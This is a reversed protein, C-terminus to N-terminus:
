GRYSRFYLQAPAQGVCHFNLDTYLQTLRTQNDTRGNTGLPYADLVRKEFAPLATGYTAAFTANFWSDTDNGYGATYFSGEATNTGMIVPVSAVNGAELRQRPNAVLTTDDCSFYVPINYNTQADKIQETIRNYKVCNFQDTTTGSSCSLASVLANWSSFDNNACYVSLSYAYVGSEMIAAHFPPKSTKGYSTVLIDTAYAGASEGFVTVRSKDGGFHHVNDQIWQLGARQDLIALNRETVNTIAPANVAGFDTSTLLDLCIPLTHKCNTRYNISVLM